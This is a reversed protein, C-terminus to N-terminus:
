RGATHSLQHTNTPQLNTTTDSDRPTLGYPSPFSAALADHRARWARAFRTPATMKLASHPRHNNYDQRWDDTM